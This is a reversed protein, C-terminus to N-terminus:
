IDLQVVMKKGKLNEMLDAKKNDLNEVLLSVMMAVLMEVKMDVMMSVKMEVKIEVLLHELKGVKM